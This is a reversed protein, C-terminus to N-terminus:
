VTLLAEVSKGFPADPRQSIAHSLSHKTASLCIGFYSKIEEAKNQFHIRQKHLVCKATRDRTRNSM